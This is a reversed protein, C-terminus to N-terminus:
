FVSIDTLISYGTEETKAPTILDKTTRVGVTFSFDRTPKIEIGGGYFITTKHYQDAEKSTNVSSTNSWSEEFAVIPKLAFFKSIDYNFELGHESDMMTTQKLYNPRSPISNDLYVTNRQFYYKPKIYFKFSNYRSLYYKLETEALFSAIMGQDKSGDSTPLYLRPKFKLSLSDDLINELINRISGAFSFDRIRSRDGVKDSYKNVGDTSYGFAPRASIRVDPNINYNFALYSDFIDFSPNANRFQQDSYGGIMFLSISFPNEDSKVPAQNIATNVPTMSQAFALQILFITTILFALSNKFMFGRKQQTFLINYIM